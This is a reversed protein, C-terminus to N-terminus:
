ELCHTTQGRGIEDSTSSRPLALQAIGRGAEKWVNGYTGHRAYWFNQSPSVAEARAGPMSLVCTGFGIRPSLPLSFGITLALSLESLSTAVDSKIGRCAARPSTSSYLVLVSTCSSDASYRATLAMFITAPDVTCYLKLSRWHVYGWGGCVRCAGM